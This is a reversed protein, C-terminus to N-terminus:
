DNNADRGFCQGFLSSWQKRGEETWKV